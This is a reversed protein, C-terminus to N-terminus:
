LCAPDTFQGFSRYLVPTNTQDQSISMVQTTLSANACKHASITIVPKDYKKLLQNLRKTDKVAVDNLLIEKPSVTIQVINKQITEGPPATSGTQSNARITIKKPQNKTSGEKKGKMSSKSSTSECGTTILIVATFSFLLFSKLIM